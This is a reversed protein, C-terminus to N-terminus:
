TTRTRYDDIAAPPIHAVGDVMVYDIQRDRVLRVVDVTPIGLAKAAQTLRLPEATTKM